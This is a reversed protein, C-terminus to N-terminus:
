ERDYVLISNPRSLGVLRVTITLTKLDTSLEIQRIGTIKGKSKDTIELSRENVRRGSYSSSPAVNPHPDSYDNGDLKIKTAMEEDSRKFSLGDGECPQIQLEIGANVTASESDWTGPFGSNGATREYVYPLFLTSGDPLSQSFLTTGDPLYQTFADNLTKGDESLTWHATLLMRGKIKRVVKWNNPGEVTVSLTTGQLAPQDSGDAVVTDVQGPGFTFTYKNAGVAEVKMEDNLKSKSPNVKWKGVFPNDAAWVTGAMLCGALLLQLTRNLM